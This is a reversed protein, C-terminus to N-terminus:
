VSIEFIPLFRNSISGSEKEGMKIAGVSQYFGAANPEGQILMTHAGLKITLKKAHNILAKGYGRGMYKPYVFLAELEVKSHNLSELAYFGLVTNNKEIVYYHLFADSLKKETITLEDLCKIMFEAPYGWYAKSEMALATLLQAENAKANRIKTKM